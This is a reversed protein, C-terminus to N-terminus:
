FTTFNSVKTSNQISCFDIPEGLKYDILYAVLSGITLGFCYSLTMLNGVLERLYSPVNKAALIMPLSGLIGNSLGLLASFMFSWVENQFFPQSRPFACLTLLPIIVIRVFSLVMLKIHKLHYFLPAIIKGIFDTLNFIAMLMVPMWSKYKCSIIESEIGPFLSLTVLYAVCITIMLHWIKITVYLRTTFGKKIKIMWQQHNLCNSINSLFPCKFWRQWKQYLGKSQPCMEEKENNIDCTEFNTEHSRTLAKSSEKALCAENEEPGIINPEPLELPVYNKLDEDDIGFPMDFETSNSHTLLMARRESFDSSNPSFFNSDRQHYFCGVRTSDLMEEGNVRQYYSDLTSTRCLHSKTCMTVYFCVLLNKQLLNHTIFSCIIIVISLSFFLLTNTKEDKWFFKTLVRNASVILGAASEGTMVAQTYKSPLMSTYGYFSSQQITCGFAVVAIASLNFYYLTSSSFLSFGIEFCAVASLICFSIIYGINIRWYLSVAEVIINNFIVSVSAVMIYVFSMDFIISSSPYNAQFHDVAIVFSNYPLLFGVGALVFGFYICNYPDTPTSNFHINCNQFSKVFGSSTCSFPSTQLADEEQDEDTKSEKCSKSKQCRTYRIKPYKWKSDKLLAYGRNVSVDM